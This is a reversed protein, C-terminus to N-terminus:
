DVKKTPRRPDARNSANIVVGLETKLQLGLRLFVSRLDTDFSDVAIVNPRLFGRLCDIWSDGSALHIQPGYRLGVDHFRHNPRRMLRVAKRAFGDSMWGPIYRIARLYRMASELRDSEPRVSIVVDLRRYARETVLGSLILVEPHQHGIALVEPQRGAEVAERLQDLDRAYLFEYGSGVTSAAARFYHLLTSSGAKPMSLVLIRLSHSWDYQTNRVTKKLARLKRQFSIYHITRAFPFFLTYPKVLTRLAGMWFSVNAVPPRKGLVGM